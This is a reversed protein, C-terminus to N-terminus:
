LDDGNIKQTEFGGALARYLAIRYELLLLRASLLNRQLQQEQSIATLVDLYNGLGNYYEMRLQEYAQRALKAQTELNDILERQRAERVLADEVERFANLVTKGYEYLLQHKVAETRNTEAKLRGGYFVPALLNGAINYIWDNFINEVNLSTTASASLSLRPYRNSIAAALDRDAAQLLNFANRIDPRRKALEAPIGTQPLPPLDPFFLNSIKEGQGPVQGTLVALQHQLVENRMEVSVKQALTAELLQRQRLIDVGRVQGSGFRVQMLQLAQQNIERQENVLKLQHQSETLQYWTLVTEASLSVAMAQYDAMAAEERFRAAQVNSRIRGWLDVEYAAAFGMEYSESRQGNYIKEGRLVGELNPLLSSKERSTVARAVMLRQWATELDFNSVLMSDLLSDLRRDQFITWWHEPLIESGTVSFAAPAAFPPNVKMARRSCGPVSAILIILIFIIGSVNRSM